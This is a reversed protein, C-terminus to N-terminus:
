KTGGLRRYGTEQGFTMVPDVTPNLQTPNNWAPAPRQATRLLRQRADAQADADDGLAAAIIGAAESRETRRPWPWLRM